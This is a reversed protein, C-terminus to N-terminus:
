ALRPKHLARIALTGAVVGALMAPVFALTGPAALPLATLAPGPCLGGLGWGIGFLVSGTVLKADIDTKKPFQFESEFIPKGLRRVLVYGISTVAIAGMMVFALSPDWTGAVDLFNQVKAPDVMGALILGLGFTLGLLFNIALRM